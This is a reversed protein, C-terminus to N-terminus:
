AGVRVVVSAVSLVAGHVYGSMDLHNNRLDQNWPQSSYVPEGPSKFADFRLTLTRMFLSPIIKPIAARMIDKAAAGMGNFTLKSFEARSTVM